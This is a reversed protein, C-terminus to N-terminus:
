KRPKRCTQDLNEALAALRSALMGITGNAPLGGDGIREESPLPISEAERMLPSGLQLHPAHLQDSIGSLIGVIQTISDKVGAIKSRISDAKEEVGVTACEVGGYGEDPQEFSTTEDPKLNAAKSSALTANLALLDSKLSIERFLGDSTQDLQGPANMPAPHGTAPIPDNAM